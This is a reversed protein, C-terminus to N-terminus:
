NDQECKVIAETLAFRWYLRSGPTFVVIADSRGATEDFIALGEYNVGWIRRIDVEIQPQSNGLELPTGFDAEFEGNNTEIFREFTYLEVSKPTVALLYKFEAEILRM